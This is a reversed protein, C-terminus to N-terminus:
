GEELIRTSTSFGWAPDYQHLFYIPRTKMADPYEGWRLTTAVSPIVTAPISGVAGISARHVHGSFIAEVQDAQTIADCLRDMALANSFNMPEPGVPVQFPPHHTFIAAPKSSDMNLTARLFDCRADCFDGKNSQPDLTDLVILRVPFDEIAYEIFQSDPSLYGNPAFADRLNARDDKNGVMVYAPANAQSLIKAAVAYEDARGNHTVDGTHIIVDPQQDLANIDAIAREFDGIRANNRELFRSKIKARIRAHRARRWATASEAISLSTL